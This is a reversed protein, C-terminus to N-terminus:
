FDGRNTFIKALEFKSSKHNSQIEIQKRFLKEVQGSKDDPDDQLIIM